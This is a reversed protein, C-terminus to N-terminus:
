RTLITVGLGNFPYGQVPTYWAYNTRPWALDTASSSIGYATGGYYWPGGSDGGQLPSRGMDVKVLKGYGNEITNRGVVEGCGAGTTAGFYCVDMGNPPSPTGVATVDRTANWNYYFSPVALHSSGYWALDGYTKGSSNPVTYGRRSILEYGTSM